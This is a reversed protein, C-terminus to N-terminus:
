ENIKKILNDVMRKTVHPKSNYNIRAKHQQEPNINKGDKIVKNSTIRKVKNICLTCINRGTIPSKQIVSEKKHKRCSTCLIEKELM